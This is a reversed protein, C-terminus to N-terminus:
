LRRNSTQRQNNTEESRGKSRYKELNIKNYILLMFMKVEHRDRERQMCNLLLAALVLPSPAPPLM